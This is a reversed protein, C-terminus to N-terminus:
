WPVTQDSGGFRAPFDNYHPLLDSVPLVAYRCQLHMQPRFVGPPLLLANVGAQGLERVEGVLRTGCTACRKRPMSRVTWTQVDGEITVAEAPYLAVAVYPGSSAAQCEDCHCYFQEVPEGQIRVTVGGCLCKVSLLSM